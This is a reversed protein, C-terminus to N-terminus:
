TVIAVTNYDKSLIFNHQLLSASCRTVVLIVFSSHGGLTHVCTGSSADQIKVT